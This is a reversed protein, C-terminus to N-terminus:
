ATQSNNQLEALKLAFEAAPIPRSFLYGQFIDCGHALLFDRQAETEVGEAV